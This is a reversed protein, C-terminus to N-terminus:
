NYRDPNLLSMDVSPKENCISEAILKGTIPGLSLGMMAHGAGTYLNKYAKFKGIYPLGDPSCPRLGAWPESGEFHDMGFAPFYGKVSNKIAHVRDKNINHNIGAIEMTGAFRIGHQMPTVAVRAEALVSPIEMPQPANKMMMSYGKGAQLPMSVQLGKGILDSWTGGAIVFHNATITKEGAEVSAIRNGETNIKKIETNLVFKVGKEKLRAILAPIFINPTIHADGPYHVAGAVTLDMNKELGQISESSYIETELGAKSAVSAVEVEEELTHREKCYILLGKQELGMAMQSSWSEFISKSALNLDRLVPIAKEVKEKTSAKHFKWTWSILDRSLKPQIYFPSGKTFMWKIGMAMMGPAALPIIHSPVILGANGYSCGDTIDTKDVVVVEFGKENLFYASCLGSVGGGIIVVKNM